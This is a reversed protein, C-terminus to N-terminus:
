PARPNSPSSCVLEDFADACHVTGDCVKTATVCEGSLPCRFDGAQACDCSNEDDGNPCSAEHDCVHFPSLCARTGSCRFPRSPPCTVTDCAAEDSEDTCDILTNCRVIDLLCAGNGCRLTRGPPCAFSSCNTEDTMDGCDNDGDCHWEGPVSRGNECRLRAAPQVTESEGLVKELLLPQGSAIVLPPKPTFKSAITTPGATISPGPTPVSTGTATSSECRRFLLGDGVGVLGAPCRAQCVGDHLYTAGMCVACLGTGDNRCHRCSHDPDCADSCYRNYLNTGIATTKAPCADLCRGQYRYRRGECVVCSAHAADCVACGSLECRDECFRGFTGMGTAPHASPCSAVCMGNSLYRQDKCLLCADGSDNCLHCGTGPSCPHVCQRTAGTVQVMRLPAPCASFCQGKHLIDTASCALCSGDAADCQVCRPSCTSTNRLLCVRGFLGRGQPITGSCVHVFTCRNSIWPSLPPPSICVKAVHQLPLSLSVAMFRKSM